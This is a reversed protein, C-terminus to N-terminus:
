ALISSYTTMGKEMSEEQGVSQICTDQMAPLNKVKQAILFAWYMHMYIDLVFGYM